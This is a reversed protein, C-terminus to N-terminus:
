PALHEIIVLVAAIGSRGDDKGSECVSAGFPSTHVVRWGESLHRNLETADLKLDGPLANSFAQIILAKQM